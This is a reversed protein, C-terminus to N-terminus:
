EPVSHTQLKAQLQAVLLSLRSNEARLEANEAAYNRQVEVANHYQDLQKRRSREAYLCSKARRRLLALRKREGETLAAGRSELIQNWVATEAQMETVSFLSRLRDDLKAEPSKDGRNRRRSRPRSVGTPSTRGPNSPRQSHVPKAEPVVRSMTQGAHDAIHPVATDHLSPVPSTARSPPAPQPALETVLSKKPEFMMAELVGDITPTALCLTTVDGPTLNVFDAPVDSICDPSVSGAELTPPPQQQQKRTDDGPLVVSGLELFSYLPDLEDGGVLLEVSPESNGVVHRELQASLGGRLLLASADPL